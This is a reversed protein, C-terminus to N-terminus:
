IDNKANVKPETKNKIFQFVCVCVNRPEFYVLCAYESLFILCFILLYRDSIDLFSLIRSSSNINKEKKRIPIKNVLPSNYLVNM